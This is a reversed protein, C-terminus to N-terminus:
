DVTLASIIPAAFITSAAVKWSKKMNSLILWHLIPNPIYVTYLLEPELIHEHLVVKQLQLM